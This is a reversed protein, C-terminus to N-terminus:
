FGEADAVGLIVLGLLHDVGGLGSVGHGLFRYLLHVAGAINVGSVPDRYKWWKREAAAEELWGAQPSVPASDAGTKPPRGGEASDASPKGSREREAAAPVELAELREGMAAMESPTFDKRCTNEDREAVLLEVASALDDRVHVEIQTRGLEKYAALRRSGAILSGDSRILIPQLLGGNEKISQVLQDLDGLDQRVKEGIKGERELGGCRRFRLTRPARNPSAACALEISCSM